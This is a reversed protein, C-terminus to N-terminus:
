EMRVIDLLDKGPLANVRIKGGQVEMTEKKKGQLVKVKKWNGPLTIELTLAQNYLDDPLHDNLFLLLHSDNKEKETITLNEKEKVYRTITGMPAVWLENTGQKKKLWAAFQEFSETSVPHWSDTAEIAQSLPLVDHALFIGWGGDEILGDQLLNQLGTIKKLDSEVTRPGAYEIIGAQLAGWQITGPQNPSHGAARAAPYRKLVEEQVHPNYNVFPYAFSLVQCEPIRERIMKVPETLEYQLSGEATERGDKLSTLKPHTVTHSGLEHGKRALETFQHWYGFRWQPKQEPNDQLSGTILFFTAKLGYKSLIPELYEYQSILGDDFTLSYAARNFNYWDAVKIYSPIPSAVSDPPSATLLHNTLFFLLFLFTHKKM